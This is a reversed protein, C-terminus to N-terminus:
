RHSPVDVYSDSFWKIRLPVKADAISEDNVVRGTGYNIQRGSEKIVQLVVILRSGPPLQCSM